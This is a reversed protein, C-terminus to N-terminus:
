GRRGPRSGFIATGIRVMTAGEEVAVEFDHSMGMSLERMGTGAASRGACDERLKRLRAFWPRSEEPNEFFPPIAMLGALRVGPLAEASEVLGPLEGPSIGAKGPEGALNVELLVPMGTDAEACRRSIESLLRSSDVTQIWSFLAVAKRVKNRQLKGVMHWELGPYARIKEEAEQVYNEGFSTVGASAAEGIRDPPQTKGVAVLRIEEASRGARAAAKGIRERVQLVRDRLTEQRTM